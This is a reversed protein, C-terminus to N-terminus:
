LNALRSKVTDVVDEDMQFAKALLKSPLPPKSAFLSLPASVLGASQSNVVAFYTAKGKGVNQQFHMLGRPVVFVEGKRVVKSYVVNACTVFGVLLEGREVLIMESARPHTHPRNVGGEAFDVRAISLGITNLGPFSLVDGRTVNVGFVNNTDGEVATRDFFFDDVVVDSTAKCPFGSGAGAGTPHATTNLDAVCLDQLPDADSCLATPVLMMSLLLIPLLLNTSLLTSSTAAMNCRMLEQVEHETFLIYTYISGLYINSQETIRHVGSLCQSPRGSKEM